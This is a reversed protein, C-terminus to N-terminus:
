YLYLAFVVWSLILLGWPLKTMFKGESISLDESVDHPKAIQQIKLKQKRQKDRERAKMNQQKKYEAIGKEIGQAILKTQEKSQGKKQTGKAVKLAQEQTEKSVNSTM